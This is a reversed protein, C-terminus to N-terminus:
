PQWGAVHLLMRLSPHISRIGRDLLAQMTARQDLWAPLGVCYSQWNSRSWSPESPADFGFVDALHQKYLDALERRREVIRPLRRLQVRGLAAQLDTMRYNYGLDPYTEYIVQKSDHRVADTM